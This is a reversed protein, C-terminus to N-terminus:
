DNDNGKPFNFAVAPFTTGRIEIKTLVADFGATTKIWDASAEFQATDGIKEGTVANAIAQFVLPTPKGGLTAIVEVSPAAVRVFNELEGDMVYLTLKGASADRVLELHYVEAGLVVPTGGHPPNHEHKPPAGAAASAPNEKKSCAPLAALAILVVISRFTMKM